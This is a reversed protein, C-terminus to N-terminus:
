IGPKQENMKKNQNGILKPNMGNQMEFKQEELIVNSTGKVKSKSMQQYSEKHDKKRNKSARDFQNEENISELNNSQRQM